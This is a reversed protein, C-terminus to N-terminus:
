KGEITFGYTTSFVKQEAEIIDFLKGYDADLKKAIADMKKGMADTLVDAFLLKQFTVMSSKSIKNIYKIFSNASGIFKKEKNYPEVLKLRAMNRISIQTISDTWAVCSEKGSGVTLANIYAQDVENICDVVYDNYDIASSFTKKQGFCTLHTLIFLILFVANKM